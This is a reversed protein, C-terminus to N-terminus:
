KIKWILNLVVILASGACSPSSVRGELDTLSPLIHDYLTKKENCNNTNTLRTRLTKRTSATGHSIGKERMSWVWGLVLYVQGSDYPVTARTEARQPTWAQNLTDLSAHAGMWFFGGRARNLNSLSITKITAHSKSHLTFSPGESMCSCTFLM